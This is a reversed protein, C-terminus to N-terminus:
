FCAFMLYSINELNCFVLIVFSGQNAFFFFLILFNFKVKDEIIRGVLVAIHTGLHVRDDWSVGHEFVHDFCCHPIGVVHLNAVFGVTLFDHCPETGAGTAAAAAVM